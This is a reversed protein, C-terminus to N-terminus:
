VQYQHINMKNVNEDQQIGMQEMSVRDNAAREQSHSASNGGLNFSSVMPANLYQAHNKPDYKQTFVDATHHHGVVNKKTSSQPKENSTCRTAHAAEVLQSIKDQKDNLDKFM